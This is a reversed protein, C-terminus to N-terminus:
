TLLEGLRRQEELYATWWGMMERRQNIYKAHNYSARVRNGPMHALQAEIWDEHFRGSENLVTSGLARFGHITQRGKYGMRYLAFLMTNESIFGRRKGPLLKSTGNGSDRLERLLQVTRFTLPVIHDRGSKTRVSPIKWVPKTNELDFESWDAFRLESTRVLTHMALEIALGTIREASRKYEALKEYFEALEIPQIHPYHIVRPKPVLLGKLDATPDRDAIRLGVAFRFVQGITQKVKQSVELAGRDEVKRILELLLPADIDRIPTDGIHPYVDRALRSHVISRHRESWRPCQARWWEEAVDYFSTESTDARPVVGGRIERRANLALQRAEALTVDPYPGFSLTKRKGDVKCDM